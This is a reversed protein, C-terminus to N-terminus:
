PGFTWVGGPSGRYTGPAQSNVQEVVANSSDKLTFQVSDANGDSNGDHYTWTLTGTGTAGGPAAPGFSGTATGTQTDFGLTSAAGTDTCASATVSSKTWIRGGAATGVISPRISLTRDCNNAASFGISAGQATQVTGRASVNGQQPPVGADVITVTQTGPDLTVGGTAGSLGLIVTKNGDVIGDDIATITITKSTTDGNAFNVTTPSVTREGGGATGAVDITAGVAGTSGGTRTVQVTTSGGSETIQSSAPAALTLHGETQAVADAPASGGIMFGVVIAV